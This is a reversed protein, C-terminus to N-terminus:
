SIGKHVKEVDWKVYFIKDHMNSNFTTFNKAQIIMNTVELELKIPLAFYSILIRSIISYLSHLM